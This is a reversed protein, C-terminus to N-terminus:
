RMGRGFDPLYVLPRAAEATVRELRTEDQVALDGFDLDEASPVKAQAFADPHDLDGALEDILEKTVHEMLYIHSYDRRQGDVYLTENALSYRFVIPESPRRFRISLSLPTRAVWLPGCRSELSKLKQTAYEALEELRVAKDIQAQYPHRALYDWLIMASFGNRSGALTSDRSGIYRPKSPPLMLYKTKSMYVGCPWPAGIWKHGSMTLSHVFPLRFDFNPGREALRGAQHAMEVFPMYAAALAGDVHFWFGNRKVKYGGFDIERQHLGYRQLIPMLRQGAGEVDDYAGKFTTGYNFNVLIPHGRAAFFEVLKALADVDISGPGRGGETSPVENPWTKDQTIPCQGPYQSTGIEYFTSIGLVCMAKVVSYHTDESYFAVPTLANPNDSPAQAQQYIIRSPESRPRGDRSATQAQVSAQPDDLLSKGALYDRGNWLGYLNGETSGMTLVYGWYSEPDDPDHPWRAHWLRAYYDLVAREMWKSNLTFNGSQFPDGVNNIHFNLFPRLDEYDLDQNAQFGLSKEQRRQQYALLQGLAQKRERRPLGDPPIRFTECSIGPVEPYVSCPDDTPQNPLRVPPTAAADQSNTLAGSAVAILGVATGSLLERRNIPDTNM